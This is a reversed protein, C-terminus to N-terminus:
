PLIQYSKTNDDFFGANFGVHAYRGKQEASTENYDSMKLKIDTTLVTLFNNVMTITNGVISEITNVPDPYYTHTEKDWLRLRYGVAYCAGDPVTFTKQDTVISIFPSPSIFATRIGTFSTYELSLTSTADKLNVGTSMIELQDYIGSGAGQKPLFRHNLTVKAGVKNISADFHARVKITSRPTSLRGLLTTAMKFALAGGGLDAVIGKFKFKLPKKEGFTAISDEDRETLTSLYKKEAEDYDYQITVINTIKNSGLSWTPVGVISSENLEPVVGGLDAQDLIAMTILGDESFIRTNTPKFIEDEFWKLVKANNYFYLRYDTNFFYQDRLAEIRAVDVENATLGLGNPLVDYTPDNTLDGNKSLVMQLFIDLPNVTEFQTVLYVGDGEKHAAATTGKRARVLGTLTENVIAGYEIFENNVKILGTPPYNTVDDLTMSLSVDLIDITLVAEVNFTEENLKSTLETSRISFGNTIKTVTSIRTHAVKKYDAWDFSGTIFGVFAEVEKELYNSEDLMIKTTIYENEDKLKFTFSGVPTKANRIDVNTARTGADDVIRNEVPIVLGSDPEKNCFYEDGIKVVLNVQQEKKVVEDNYV